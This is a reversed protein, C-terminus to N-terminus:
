AAALWTTLREYVRPHNLLDLHGLGGLVDTPVTHREPVPVLGDGIRAGIVNTPERTLTSLVAYQGITSPLELRGPSAQELDRIGVSRQALIGSLWRVQPMSEILRETLAAHRALPAGDRPSGLTVVSRVVDLWPPRSDLAGLSVLGGMSHGVLVIQEVPVPWGDVVATLLRALADANAAIPLGTNYRVWLPTLGHESHLRSGYSTQPDGWREQARYRWSHETEVLGHVFVALRGNASGYASRLSLPRPAVDYGGHRLTMPVALASGAGHLRDGSFGNLLAVSPAAGPRDHISVAAETARASVIARAALTATVLGAHVWFYAQRILGRQISHIPKAIPGIRAEFPRYASDTVAHQTDEAWRAIGRASAGALHALADAETRKLALEM